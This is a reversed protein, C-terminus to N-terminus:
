APNYSLERNKWQMGDFTECHACHADWQKTTHGCNKCVWTPAATATTSRTLWRAAADFDSYEGQEVESMLKCATATDGARLAKKLAERAMRWHGSAIAIQAVAIQTEYADPKIAAFKETLSLRKEKPLGGVSQRFLEGLPQSAGQKWWSMCQRIAKKVFGGALLARIYVEQAPIFDPQARVARRAAALATDPLGDDLLTLAHRAHLMAQLHRLQHRTIKGTRLARTLLLAGQQWERLRLHLSLLAPTGQPNLASARAALERAKPLQHSRSASESLLRAALYETEKHALMSELLTHTRTDNGQLRSVQASLLLTLPSSGLLKEAKRTHEDAANVDAAALAVVSHTLHQMGQRYHRLSRQQAVWKRAGLVRRILLYAYALALASVLTLALVFAATTDIRYDMWNLTISGPNEALWAVSMGLCALLVLLLLMDMM